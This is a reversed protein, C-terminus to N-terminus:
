QLSFVWCSLLVLVVEKNPLNPEEEEEKGEEEESELEMGELLYIKPRNCRHGPQYKDDCYYCLDKEKREQM